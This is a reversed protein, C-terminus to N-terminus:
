GLLMFRRQQAVEGSPNLGRSILECQWAGRTGDIRYLNYAASDKDSDPAASASPVGVAPVRTGDPGNLWNIMHVHDHGHLLLEAGHDAIIRKLVPADLLRKHQAADTEPPHHILIVRFLDENKLSKLAATLELLQRTGVWGTALFPATPVGTSIGILAVKGRRRV